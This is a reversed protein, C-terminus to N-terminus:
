FLGLNILIAALGGIFLAAGGFLCGFAKLKTSKLVAHEPKDSIYYFKEHKGKQIMIDEVNQQATTEEVYPNDGATGMIYLKDNPEIFYERYRMTRNMGLFTEFKLRNSTLFQKVAVPPDRRFGSKFEFDKPIDVIAGKPDVLVKGTNDKLYFPISDFGKKITRWSSSKGSSRYEEITYRYYVCNKNSFPSKIKKDPVVQGAIEVLGMAISRIKSTPINEILRKVKFSQFGAWLLFVGVATFIISYFLSRVDAM